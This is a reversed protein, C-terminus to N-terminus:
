GLLIEQQGGALGIVTLFQLMAACLGTKALTRELFSARCHYTYTANGNTNAEALGDLLKVGPGHAIVNTVPLMNKQQASGAHSIEIKQVGPENGFKILPSSGM